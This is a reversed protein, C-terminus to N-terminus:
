IYERHKPGLIWSVLSKRTGSTVPTVRHKMTSRFVILDGKDGFDGISESEDKFEFKGGVYSSRDVLPIIISLRRVFLQPPDTYNIVDDHWDYHSNNANYVTYQITEAGYSIDYGFHRNAYTAVTNMLQFYNYHNAPDLWAVEGKRATESVINKTSIVAPTHSLKDGTNTIEDIREPSLIGKVMFFNGTNSIM